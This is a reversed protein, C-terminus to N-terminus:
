KLGLTFTFGRQLPSTNDFPRAQNAKQKRTISTPSRDKKQCLKIRKNRRKTSYNFFFNRGFFVTVPFFTNTAMLRPCLIIERLDRVRPINTTLAKEHRTGTGKLVFMSNNREFM